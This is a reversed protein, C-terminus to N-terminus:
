QSTKREKPNKEPVDRGMPADGLKTGRKLWDFATKPTTKRPQRADLHGSPGSQSSHDQDSKECNGTPAGPAETCIGIPAETSSDYLNTSSNNFNVSGRNIVLINEKKPKSKGLEKEIEEVM